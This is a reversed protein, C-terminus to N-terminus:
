SHPSKSNYVPFGFLEHKLERAMLEKVAKVVELKEFLVRYVHETVPMEVNLDRAIQHAVMTANIGEATGQMTSTIDILSRGKALEQGVYHNRSLVSSCTAVLDGLGALGTLTLPNAGLVVGLRTIEYLGRSILSAKANDGYGLGDCMGAALAIINKLVGGLEVGLMDNSIYVRFLPLAIIQQAMKAVKIDDAAVVSTAPLGRLIEAALNPGSLVCINSKYKHDIEDAIVVSMRKRTELEFGKTASVILISDNLFQKIMKVNQRMYQSPVAIIVMSASDIVSEIANSFTITDPFCIGPVTSIDERNSNLTIAEDARRTWISVNLGSNSLIIGLTMGWTTNGVIAIKTM